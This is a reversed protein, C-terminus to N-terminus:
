HNDNRCHEDVVEDYHLKQTNTREQANGFLQVVFPRENINTKLLSITKKDGYHIAKASVMESFVVDAGYQKCLMRFPLDTVGAMPALIIKGTMDSIVM